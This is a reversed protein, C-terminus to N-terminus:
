DENISANIASYQKQTMEVIQDIDEQEFLETNALASKLLDLRNGKKFYMIDEFAAATEADKFDLESNEAVAKEMMDNFHTQAVLHKFRNQFNPDKLTKTIHAATREAGELDKLQDRIETFLGGSMGVLKGRGLWTQDTSNTKRGITPSGLAGTIAGILGEEWKNTDGYTNSIGQGISSM